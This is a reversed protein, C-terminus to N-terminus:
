RPPPAPPSTRSGTWPTRSRSAPPRAAPTSRRSQRSRATSRSSSTAGPRWTRSTRRAPSRSRLPGSTASRRKEDNAWAMAGAIGTEMIKGNIIKANDYLFARHRDAVMPMAESVHEPMNAETLRPILRMVTLRAVADVIEKMPRKANELLQEIRAARQNPTAQLLQRIDLGEAVDLEEQGFEKLIEKGAETPKANKLWSVQADQAYGKDTRALSRRMTRGDDLTFEVEMESSQMLAASDVPRKGLSPVYGMALFQIAQAITTKGAGNRGGLLNLKEVEITRDNAKIGKTTLKM